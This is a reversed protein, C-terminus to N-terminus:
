RRATRTEAVVALKKAMDARDDVDGVALFGFLNQLLGIFQQLLPDRGRNGLAGLGLRLQKLRLLHLRDALQGAADRVVEVVHQLDDAAIQLEETAVDRAIVAGLLAQLGRDGGDRATRLEGRLQQGEAAALRERRFHDIEAAQDAADVVHQAPREALADFDLGHNGAAQPVGKDIGDLDLVGQEIERDIRAVGHLAVALEGDFGAVGKEVVVIRRAM